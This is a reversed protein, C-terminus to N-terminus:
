TFISTKGFYNEGPFNTERWDPNYKENYKSISWSKVYQTNGISMHFRYSFHFNAYYLVFFSLTYAFPKYDDLVYLKHTYMYDDVNLLTEILAIQKNDEYISVYNFSGISRSYCHFIHGSDLTIIYFSKYYGHKSFAISGYKNENLYLDFVRTLNEKGFFYRLPIYNVWRSFHHVGKISTENNSISIDQYKDISGLNGHFNFNDGNIYYSQKINSATQAIKIIM